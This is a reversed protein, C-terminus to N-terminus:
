INSMAKIQIRLNKALALEDETAIGLVVDPWIKDLEEQLDAVTPLPRDYEAVVGFAGAVAQEHLWVGYEMSDNPTACFPLDEDIHDFRVTMQVEGDKMYSCSGEVVYKVKFGSDFEKNLEITPATEVVAEKKKRAM